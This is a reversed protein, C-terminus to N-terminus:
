QKMESASDTDRGEVEVRPKRAAGIPTVGSSAADGHIRRSSPHNAAWRDRYQRSFAGFGGTELPTVDQRESAGPLEQSGVRQETEEREEMVERQEASDERDRTDSM